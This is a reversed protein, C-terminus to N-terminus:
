SMMDCAPLEFKDGVLTSSFVYGTKLYRYRQRTKDHFLLKYTDERPYMLGNVTFVQITFTDDKMRWWGTEFQDLAKGKVCKRFQARFEGNPLMHDLWMESKDHPQGTGYWSGVPFPAAAAPTALLVFLLATTRSL